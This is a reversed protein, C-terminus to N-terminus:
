RLSGIMEPNVELAARRRFEAPITGIQARRQNPVLHFLGAHRVDFADPQRNGAAASQHHANGDLLAIGAMRLCAATIATATDRRRTDRATEHDYDVIIDIWRVGVVHDPRHAAAAFGFGVDIDQALQQLPGSSGTM